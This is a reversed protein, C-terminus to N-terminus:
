MFFLSLFIIIIVQVFLCVAHKMHFNILILMDSSLSSSSSLWYCAFSFYFCIMPRAHQALSKQLPSLLFFFFNTKVAFIWQGYAQQNYKQHVVVLSHIHTHIHDDPGFIFRLISLFNTWHNRQAHTHTHTHFLWM